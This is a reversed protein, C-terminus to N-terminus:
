GRARRVEYREGFKTCNAAMFACFIAAMDETMFGSCPNTTDGGGHAEDVIGHMRDMTCFVRFNRETEM